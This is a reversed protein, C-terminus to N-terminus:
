DAKKEVMEMEKEEVMRDVMSVVKEFALRGVM